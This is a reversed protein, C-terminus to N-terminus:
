ESRHTINVTKRGKHFRLTVEEDIFDRCSCYKGHYPSSIDNYIFDKGGKYDKLVATSTTYDRGYAPTLIPM